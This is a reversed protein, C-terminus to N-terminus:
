KIEVRGGKPVKVSGSSSKKKKYIPRGRRGELNKEEPYIHWEPPGRGEKARKRSESKYEDSANPWNHPWPNPQTRRTKKEAKTPSM